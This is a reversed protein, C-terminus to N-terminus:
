KETAKRAEYLAKNFSDSCEIGWGDAFRKADKLSEFMRSTVVTTKVLKAKFKPNDVVVDIRDTTKM